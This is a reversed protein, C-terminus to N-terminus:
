RKKEYDLDNRQKDQNGEKKKDRERWELHRQIWKWYRLLSPKEDKEICWADMMDHQEIM